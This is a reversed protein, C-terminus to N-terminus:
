HSLHAHKYKVEETDSFGLLKSVFLHHALSSLYLVGRESCVDVPAIRSVPYGCVDSLLRRGVYSFLCADGM